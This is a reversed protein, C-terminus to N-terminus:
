TTKKAKKKFFIKDNLDSAYDLIMYDIPNKQLLKAIRGHPCHPHGVKLGFVGNLVYALKRMGSCNDFAPTNSDIYAGGGPKVLAYILKSFASDNMSYYWCIRNFVFDFPHEIYCKADELYGLSFEIKVGANSAQKKAIDMYAHSVDHWTVIGGRASFAVSYQGPGGGLDLIRKGQIGGLWQDILELLDTNVAEYETKAYSQAYAIPVPDWGKEPRHLM